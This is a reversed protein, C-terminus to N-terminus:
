QKLQKELLSKVRTDKLALSMIESHDFALKPLEQINFWQAEKADDQAKINLESANVCAYYVISVTRGRPDRGVRGFAGLQEIIVGSIGTEEQLERKASDELEENYEVFGGPIAWCDKFPDYKRKILLVKIKEEIKSFIIIDTTLAPNKYEKAM